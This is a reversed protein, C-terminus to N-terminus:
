SICRLAACRAGDAGSRRTSTTDSRPSPPSTPSGSTSTTACRWVRCCPCVPPLPAPRPHTASHHHLGSIPIDPAHKVAVQPAPTAASCCCCAPCAPLCTPLQSQQAGTSGQRGAAGEIRRGQWLGSRHRLLPPEAPAAARYCAPPAMPPGGAPAGPATGGSRGGNGACGCRPVRRISINPSVLENTTATPLHPLMRASRRLAGQGSCM